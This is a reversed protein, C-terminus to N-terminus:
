KPQEIRNPRTLEPATWLKVLTDADTPLITIGSEENVSGLYQGRVTLYHTTVAGELGIRDQVPVARIKQNNLVVERDQLVDIYRLMVEQADSVYYAFLYGKPENLPLVRPLLHGLAQPMYFPPLEREVPQDHSSRTARTVVLHYAETTRMDPQKPDNPDIGAERENARVRTVQRDSAGFEMVGDRAPKGDQDLKKTNEVVAISSWVEHRRDFSMYQWSEADVRVNEEPVTRSRVGVRFGTPKGQPAAGRSESEDPLGPAAEEVVYSYGIDKGDRMIRLWQEPVLARTLAREPLNVFLARTRYLRQDQDDKIVSRDILQVSDIMAAFLDVVKRDEPDEWSEDEPTTLDDMRSAGAPTTLTLIYYLQPDVQVLAQQLLRRQQGIGYRIVIMGVDAQGINTTDERLLEAAPTEAKLKEATAKLLGQTAGDPSQRDVLPMGRSLTLRAVKLVRTQDDNVFQVIEDTGSRRIQKWGAPPRLSIGAAMSEFPQGLRASAKARNVAAQNDPRDRLVDLPEPTQGSARSPVFTVGALAVCLLVAFLPERM